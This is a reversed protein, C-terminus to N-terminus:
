CLLLFCLGGFLLDDLLRVVFIMFRGYTLGPNCLGVWILAVFLMRLYMLLLLLVKFM